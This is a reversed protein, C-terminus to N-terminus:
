QQGLHRGHWSDLLRIGPDRAGCLDDIGGGALGNGVGASGAEADVIRGSGQGGQRDPRALRGHADILDHNVLSREVLSVQPEAFQHLHLRSRLRRLRILQYTDHRHTIDVAEATGGEGREVRGGSLADKKLRTLERLDSHGGLAPNGLGLEGAPHLLCDAARGVDDGTIFEVRLGRVADLTTEPEEVRDKRHETPDGEDDPQEDDAVREGHEDTLSSALEGQQTRDPGAATLHDPRDECLTERDPHHARHDPEDESDPDRDPGSGQEAAEPDVKWGCTEDDFRSRDNQSEREADSGRRQGCKKRGNARAADRRHRRHRLGEGERGARQASASQDSQHEEDRAQCHQEVPGATFACLCGLHDSDPGHQAQDCYDDERRQHGLRDDRDEARRDAPQETRHALEGALFALRFGRRVAAVADAIM